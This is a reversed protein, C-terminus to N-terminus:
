MSSKKKVQSSPVPMGALHDKFKSYITSLEHRGSHVMKDIGDVTKEFRQRKITFRHPVGKVHIDMDYHDPEAARGYKKAETM